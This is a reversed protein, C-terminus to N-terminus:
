GILTGVTNGTNLDSVVAGLGQHVLEGAYSLTTSAGFEVGVTRRTNGVMSGGRVAIRSCTGNTRVHVVEVLEEVSEGYLWPVFQNEALTVRNVNNMYASEMLNGAFTNGNVAVDKAAYTSLNSDVMLGRYNQSLDCGTINIANGYAAVIGAHWANMSTYGEAAHYTNPGACNDVTLNALTLDYNNGSYIFIGTDGAQSVRSDSFLLYPTGYLRVSQGSAADFISHLIHLGQAQNVELSVDGGSLWNNSFIGDGVWTVGDGIKVLKRNGGVAGQVSMGVCGMTGGTFTLVGDVNDTNCLIRSGSSWRGVGVCYRNHFILPSTVLYAVASAPFYVTGLEPTADIAAQLAATTDTVGDDVVGYQPDLVNVGGSNLLAHVTDHHQQHTKFSADQLSDAYSTDINVPLNPM